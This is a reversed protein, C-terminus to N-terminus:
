ASSRVAQTRDAADVAYANKLGASSCGVCIWITSPVTSHGSFVVRARVALGSRVRRRHRCRRQTRPRSMGTRVSCLDQEGALGDVAEMVRLRLSACVASGSRDAGSHDTPPSELSRGRGRRVHACTCASATPASCASSRSRAPAPPASGTRTAPTSSPSRAPAWSSTMRAPQVRDSFLTVAELREADADDLADGRVEDSFGPRQIGDGQGVARDDVGVNTAGGCRGRSPMRRPSPQSSSGAVPSTATSATPRVLTGPTQAAPLTTVGPAWTTVAAPAPLAAAMAM